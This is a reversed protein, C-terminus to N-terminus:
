AGVRECDDQADESGDPGPLTPPHSAPAGAPLDTVKGQPRDRRAQDTRPQPVDGGVVLEVEARAAIRDLRELDPPATEPDPTRDCTSEHTRPEVAATVADQDSGEGVCQGWAQQERLDDAAESVVEVLLQETPGGVQGPAELDVGGVAGGAVLLERRKM